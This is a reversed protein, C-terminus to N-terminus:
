NKSELLMNEDTTTCTNLVTDEPKKIMDHDLQSTDDSKCRKFKCPSISNDKDEEDNATRKTPLAASSDDIGDSSAVLAMDNEKKQVTNEVGYKSPIDNDKALNRDVVPDLDTMQRLDDSIRELQPGMDKIGIEEPGRVYPEEEEWKSDNFSKKTLHSLEDAKKDPTSFESIKNESEAKSLSLDDINTNFIPTAPPAGNFSVSVTEVGGPGNPGEIIETSRQTIVEGELPSSSGSKKLWSIPTLLAGGLAEDSGLSLKGTNISPSYVSTVPHLDAGDNFSGNSHLATVFPDSIIPPLPFLTTPSTVHVVRDLAHLYSSLTRYHSCPSLLLEALRQITHPPAKSFHTFLTATISSLLVHLAPPLSALGSNKKAEEETASQYSHERELDLLQKPSQAKSAFDIRTAPCPFSDITIQWATLNYSKKKSFPISKELRTM